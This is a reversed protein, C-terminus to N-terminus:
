AAPDLRRMAEILREYQEPRNHPAASVRLLWDGHLEMCPVEIAHEALLAAQLSEVSGFRTRWRPALRCAAMSGRMSGDAPSIAEFIGSEIMVEHAWEVLEHNHRMVAGPGFGNMWEVADAIAMWAGVDRTGQWSFELEMGSGYHHSVCAPHTDPARALSAHLFACGKPAYVWKHLNGTYWDAGLAELDLPVMGPAHAGDVLVAVGHAHLAAVLEGVPYVLATPSTVHDVVALRTSPGVAALVADIVEAPTSVATPVAAETVTIGHRGATARLAQRVAGYVHSTTVVHDGPRWPFHSLVAAVGATANEVLGLREGPAGVLRSLAAKPAELLGLIGRGLREIPRAEIQRRHREAAEAIVAPLSGFSGHNLLVVEPDLM